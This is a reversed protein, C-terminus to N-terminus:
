KGFRIGRGLEEIQRNAIKGTMGGIFGDDDLSRRETAASIAEPIIVEASEKGWIAASDQMGPFYKGAASGVASGAMGGLRGVASGGVYSAVAANAVSTPDMGKGEANNRLAKHHGEMLAAFHMAAQPSRAALGIFTPIAQKPLNGIAQGLARASIDIVSLDGQQEPADKGFIDGAYSGHLGDWMQSPIDGIEGAIYKTGEWAEEGLDSIHEAADGGLQFVTDLFGGDGSAEKETNQNNLAEREAKKKEESQTYNAHDAQRALFSDPSYSPKAKNQGEQRTQSVQKSQNEQKNQNEQKSQSMLTVYSTKDNQPNINMKGRLNKLGGYQANEDFDVDDTLLTKMFLTRKYDAEKTPNYMNPMIRPSSDEDEMFPRNVAIRVPRDEKANDIIKSYLGREEM